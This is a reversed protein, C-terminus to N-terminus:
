EASELELERIKEVYTVNVESIREICQEIGEDDKMFRDSLAVELRELEPMNETLFAAYSKGLYQYFATESKISLDDITEFKIRNPDNLLDEEVDILKCQLREMLWILAALLSPWTHASGAAVLATKSITVPYGLCKFNLAVEDEFKVSLEHQFNPDVMRLMFTVINSFDKASPRSLSKQTIPYQYGNVQLFGLLERIHKQQAIKNDSSARPDRDQKVTPPVISHRRDVRNSGDNAKPVLSRRRNPLKSMTVDTDTSEHNPPANERGLSPIMSKRGNPIKRPKSQGGGPSPPLMSDRRNANNNNRQHSPISSLTMRRSNM